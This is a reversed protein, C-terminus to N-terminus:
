LLYSRQNRGCSNENGNKQSQCLLNVDGNEIRGLFCLSVYFLQWHTCCWVMQIALCIHTTTWINPVLSSNRPQLVLVILQFLSFLEASSCLQSIIGHPSKLVLSGKWVACVHSRNNIYFVNILAAKFLLINWPTQKISLHKPSPPVEWVEPGNLAKANKVVMSPDKWFNSTKADYDMEMHKFLCLLSHHCRLSLPQGSRSSSNSKPISPKGSLMVGTM